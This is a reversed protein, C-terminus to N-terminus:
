FWAARSRIGVEGPESFLIMYALSDWYHLDFSSTKVKPLFIMLLYLM